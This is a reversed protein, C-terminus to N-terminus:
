QKDELLGGGEMRGGMLPDGRLHFEHSKSYCQEVELELDRADISYIRRTCKVIGDGRLPWFSVPLPAFIM